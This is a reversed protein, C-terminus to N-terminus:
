VPLPGSAVGNPNQLPQGIGQGVPMPPPALNQEPLLRKMQTESVDLMSEFYLRMLERQDVFQSTAAMQHVLAYKQGEEAKIAKTTSELQIQPEYDGLYEEPNFDRWVIGDPGSVRVAMEQTVFIQIMWYTIRALQSLGESEITTLKTSFRQGAQNMQAQVETATVRGKQQSAGQIVEDAATARRMEEMIRNMEIDADAGVAQREFTSIAGQPVPLVAGPMSEISEALHKYQPDIQWMPNLAYTLADHKQSSVDNLAEQRPLIIEVDGKAFFLSTDVYNRLIAFPLFGKIEPVDIQTEVEQGDLNAMVTKKSADRRYPNEGNYIITDGNAVLIKKKRTYYVVVEVQKDKADDGLTSGLFREKDQKDTPDHDGEKAKIESLNKYLQEMEGTEPNVIKRNKLEEISTLFRYGAYKPYGPTGPRNMHTATPDVFFDALPINTYTVMDGEWSAMMIGNGYVLMDQGWDLAKQTMDNQQWYFDVLNNLVDTEQKQEELLPLFNFKPKGGFVNAKVSEVITFTEPVFDDAIGEYGRITRINNYCKWCDHWMPLYSKKIYDRATRYDDMVLKMIAEDNGDKDAKNYEPAIKDENM